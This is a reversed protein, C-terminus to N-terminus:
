RYVGEGNGGDREDRQTKYSHKSRNTALVNLPTIRGESTNFSTSTSYSQFFANM